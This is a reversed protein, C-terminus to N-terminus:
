PSKRAVIVLAASRPCAEEFTEVTFGHPEFLGALGISAADRGTRQGTVQYAWEMAARGAGGATFTAAPVVILPAGPKLVRAVERLTEPQVLFATPFTSVVAAFAEDPLPLAQARARLLRPPQGARILRRRAQRGMQASLDLGVAPVGRKALELQLHGPGHALELVPGGEPLHCLASLVWCRWAGMSVVWSVADYSFAFEQYLLRFGFGVTRRWLLNM